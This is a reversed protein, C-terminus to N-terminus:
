CRDRRETWMIRDSWRVPLSEVEDAKSALGAREVLAKANAMTQPDMSGKSWDTTYPSKDTGPVPVHRVRQELGAEDLARKYEAKSTFRRPEHFGNEQVIDIEDGIVNSPKQAWYHAMPQGCACMLVEDIKAWVDVKVTGCHACGFDYFPM